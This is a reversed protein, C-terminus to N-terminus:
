LDAGSYYTPLSEALESLLETYKSIIGLLLFFRDCMRSRPHAPTPSVPYLASLCLSEPNFRNSGTTNFKFGELKVGTGPAFLGVM